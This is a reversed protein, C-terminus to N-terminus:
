EESASSSTTGHSKEPDQAREHSPDVTGAPAMKLTRASEKNFMVRIAVSYDGFQNDVFVLDM